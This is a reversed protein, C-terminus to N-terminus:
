GRMGMVCTDASAPVECQVESPGLPRGRKRVGGDATTNQGRGRGRRPWSGTAPQSISDVPAVQDTGPIDNWQAENPDEMDIVSNWCSVQTIQQCGQRRVNSDNGPRWTPQEFNEGDLEGDSTGVSTTPSSSSTSMSIRSSQSLSAEKGDRKRWWLGSLYGSGPESDCESCGGVSFRSEFVRSRRLTLV